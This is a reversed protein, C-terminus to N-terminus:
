PNEEIQTPETLDTLSVGSGAGNDKRLRVQEPRHLKCLQESILTKVLVSDFSQIDLEGNM